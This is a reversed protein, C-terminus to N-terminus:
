ITYSKWICFKLYDCVQQQPNLNETVNRGKWQNGAKRFFTIAKSVDNFLSLNVNRLKGFIKIQIKLNILLGIYM